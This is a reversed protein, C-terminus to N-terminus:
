GTRAKKFNPDWDAKNGAAWKKSRFVRDKKKPPDIEICGNRKLDERRESRSTIPRGDIPSRYEPIDSQILPACIEGGRDPVPMPQGTSRDVFGGDRWVYRAM